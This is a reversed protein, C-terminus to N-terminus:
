IKEHSPLISIDSRNSRLERGSAGCNQCRYLDRWERRTQMFRSSSPSQSLRRISRLAARLKRPTRRHCSGLQTSRAQQSGLISNNIELIVLNNTDWVKYLKASLHTIQAFTHMLKPCLGTCGVIRHLERESGELLWNFSCKVQYEDLPCAIESMINYLAIRNGLMIRARSCQVYGPSHYNHLPDSTELVREALDTAKYWPPCDNGSDTAEWNVNQTIDPM